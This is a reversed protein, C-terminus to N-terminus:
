TAGNGARISSLAAQFFAWQDGPICSRSFRGQNMLATIREIISAQQEPNLESFQKGQDMADRWAYAENRSGYKIAAVAQHGLAQHIYDGGGNQNQWVHGMEHALTGLGRKNLDGNADFCNDSLYITNGVTKPAGITVLGGRKIRVLDMDMSNGYFGEFLAREDDTLGRSPPELGILTGAASAISAALRMTVDVAGGLGRGGAHVYAMGFNKFAGVFDGNLLAKFGEYHDSSFVAIAQVPTAVLDRGIELATNTINRAVDVLRSGIAKLPQKLGIPEFLQALGSTLHDAANFLANGLRLPAQLFGKDLGQGLSTFAAGVKGRALNGLFGGLGDVTGKFAATLTSDVGDAVAVIAQGVSKVAGVIANGVSKIAKKAAKLPNWFEVEIEKGDILVTGKDNETKIARVEAASLGENALVRRFMEGEDGPTDSTNLRADLHHGAEEVFTQAALPLNQKLKENIYVVGTQASYAGNAGNLEADSAFQVPPLWRFDGALASRRYSEAERLNYDEGFVQKMFSHFEAPDAAKESFQERFLSQTKGEISHPDVQNFLGRLSPSMHPPTSTRGFNDKNQRRKRKSSQVPNSNTIFPNLQQIRM